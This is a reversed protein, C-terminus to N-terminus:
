SAKRYTSGDRLQKVHDHAAKVDAYQRSILEQTPLDLHTAELAKRYAAVASDEGREAEELVSHPENSSLASKLNIWGRHISGSLSGSTEVDAGLGVVRAQLEAAFEARQKAYRDFVRALEPVKVDEASTKFGQQGDKVVEILDNLTKITSKINSNM